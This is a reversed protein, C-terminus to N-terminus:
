RGGVFGEGGSAQSFCTLGVGHGLVPTLARANVRPISATPAKAVTGGPNSYFRNSGATSAGTSTVKGYVTPNGQTSIVANSHIGALSQEYGAATSVLTSSEIELNGATLIAAQPTYPLFVYEAKVM